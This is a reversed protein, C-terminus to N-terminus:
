VVNAPMSNFRGINNNNTQRKVKQNQIISGNQRIFDENWEFEWNLDMGYQHM